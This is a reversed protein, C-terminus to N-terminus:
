GGFSKIQRQRVLPIKEAFASAKAMDPELPTVGKAPLKLSLTGWSSFFFLPFAYDGEREKKKIFSIIDSQLCCFIPHTHWGFGTGIRGASGGGKALDPKRRLFVAREYAFRGKVTEAKEAASQRVFATNVFFVSSM